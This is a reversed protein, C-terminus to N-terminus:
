EAGQGTRGRRAGNGPPQGGVDRACCTVGRGRRARSGPRAVQRRRLRAGADRARGSRGTARGPRRRGAGDPPSAGCGLGSRLHRTRARGSGRRRCRVAVAVAGAGAAARIRRSGPRGAADSRGARPVAARLLLPLPAPRVVALGAAQRWRPASVPQCPLGSQRSFAMSAPAAAARRSRWSQRASPTGNPCPVARTSAPVQRDRAVGQHGGEAVGALRLGPQGGVLGAPPAAHRGRRLSHRSSSACTGRV